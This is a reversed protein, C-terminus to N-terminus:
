GVLERISGFKIFTYKEKSFIEPSGRGTVSPSYKRRTTNVPIKNGNKQEM